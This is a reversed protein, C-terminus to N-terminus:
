KAQGPEGDPVVKTRDFSNGRLAGVAEISAARQFRNRRDAEGVREGTELRKVEKVLGSISTIGPRAPCFPSAFRKWASECSVKHSAGRAGIMRRRTTSDIAREIGVAGEARLDSSIEIVEARGCGSSQRSGITCACELGLRFRRNRRCVPRAGATAGYM